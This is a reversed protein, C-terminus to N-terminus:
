PTLIAVRYQPFHRIEEGRSFCATDFPNCRMATGAEYAMITKPKVPADQPTQLNFQGAKFRRNVM